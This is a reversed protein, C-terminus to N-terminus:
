AVLQQQPLAAMAALVRATSEAVTDAFESQHIEFLMVGDFGVRDLAAVINEIDLFGNGLGRHDALDAARVDHVHVHVIRPGLEEIYSYLRRHYEAEDAKSTLGMKGENQFWYAIHGIDLTAGVNPHDVMELIRLHEEPNDPYRWNELGIRTGARAAAEGMAQLVVVLRARFEEHAMHRIPLGAHVTVAELDLAQAAAISMFLQRHSEAQIYPNTSVLPTDVYPAHIVGRAFADRMERTAAQTESDLEEWLFSYAAEGANFPRPIGSLGIANVGLAQAAQVAAASTPLRFAGLQLALNNGNM